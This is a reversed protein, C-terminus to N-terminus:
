DNDQFNIGPSLSKKLQEGPGECFLGPNGAIDWLSAWLPRFNGDKDFSEAFAAETIAEVSADLRARIIKSVTRREFEEGVYEQEAILMGGRTQYRVVFRKNGEKFINWRNEEDEDSIVVINSDLSYSSSAEKLHKYDFSIIQGGLNIQPVLVFGRPSWHYIPYAEDLNKTFVDGFDIYQLQHNSYSIITNYSGGDLGTNDGLYIKFNDLDPKVVPGFNLPGKYKFDFSFVGENYIKVSRQVVRGQQDDHRNFLVNGDGDFIFEDIQSRLKTSGQWLIQAYNLEENSHLIHFHYDQSPRSGAVAAKWKDPIRISHFIPDQDKPLEPVSM